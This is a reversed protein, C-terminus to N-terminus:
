ECLLYEMLEAGTLVRVMDNDLTAGAGVITVCDFTHEKGDTGVFTNGVIVKATYGIPVCTNYGNGIVTVIDGTKITTM